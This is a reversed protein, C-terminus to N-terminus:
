PSTLYAEAKAQTMIHQIAEYTDLEHREDDTLTGDREAAILAYARTHVAPSAQFDIVQEPTPHSAIFRAVELIAQNAIPM